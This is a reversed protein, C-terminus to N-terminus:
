QHDDKVGRDHVDRQRRGLSVQAEAVHVPLPDHRRVRQREAAQQQEEAPEATAEATPPADTFKPISTVARAQWPTNPAMSAGAASDSSAVVNVSGFSRPLANPM